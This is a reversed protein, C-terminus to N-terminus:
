WAIKNWGADHRATSNTSFLKKGLLHFVRYDFPTSHDDLFNSFNRLTACDADTCWPVFFNWRSIGSNCSVQPFKCCTSTIIGEERLISESLIKCIQEWPKTGSDEPRRVQVVGKQFRFFRTAGTIGFTTCIANLDQSVQQSWNEMENQENGLLYLNYNSVTCMNATTFVARRSHYKQWVSQKSPPMSKKKQAHTSRKEIGFVESTM